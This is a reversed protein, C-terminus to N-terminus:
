QLRAELEETAKIEDEMQAKKKAIYAKIQEGCQARFANEDHMKEQYIDNLDQLVKIERESLSDLDVSRLREVLANKIEEM